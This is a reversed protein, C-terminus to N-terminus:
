CAGRGTDADLDGEPWDVICRRMSQRRKWEEYEEWDSEVIGKGPLFRYDMRNEDFDDRDPSFSM